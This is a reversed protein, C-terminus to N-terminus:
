RERVRWVAWSSVDDVRFNHITGDLKILYNSIENPSSCFSSIPSLSIPGRAGVNKLQLAEAASRLLIRRFGEKKETDLQAGEDQRSYRAPVKTEMYEIQM